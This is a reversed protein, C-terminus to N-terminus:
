WCARQMRISLANNPVQQVNEPKVILSPEDLLPHACVVTTKETLKSSRSLLDSHSADIAEFGLAFAIAACAARGILVLM